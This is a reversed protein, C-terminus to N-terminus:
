RARPEGGPLFTLAFWATVTVAVGLAVLPWAEVLLALLTGALVLALAVVVLIRQVPRTLM